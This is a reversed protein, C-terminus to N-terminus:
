CRFKGVIFNDKRLRWNKSNEWKLGQMFLYTGHDINSANGLCNFM